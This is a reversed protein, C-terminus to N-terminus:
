THSQFAKRPRGSKNEQKPTVPPLKESLVWYDWGEHRKVEEEEWGLEILVKELNQVQGRNEHVAYRKHKSTYTRSAGHKLLLRVMSASRQRVALMLPSHRGAATSRPHHENVDAGYQLLIQAIEEQRAAVAKQLPTRRRTKGNPSVGLEMLLQVMQSIRQWACPGDLVSLLLRRGQDPTLPAKLRAFLWRVAEFRTFCVALRLPKLLDNLVRPYREVVFEMLEVDGKRALKELAQKCSPFPKDINVHNQQHHHELWVGLAEKNRTIAAMTLASMPTSFIVTYWMSCGHEMITKAIERNGRQAAVGVPIVGFRLCIQDPDLGNQLATSLEACDGRLIAMCALIIPMSKEIPENFRHNVKDMWWQCALPHFMNSPNNSGAIAVDILGESLKDREEVAPADGLQYEIVEQMFCTFACPKNPHERLKRYLYLRKLRDPFTGWPSSDLNERTMFTFLEDLDKGNILYDIIEEDFLGTM